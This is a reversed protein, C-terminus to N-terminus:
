SGAEERIALCQVGFADVVGLRLTDPVDEISFMPPVELEAVFRGQQFGDEFARREMTVLRLPVFCLVCLVAFVIFAVPITATVKVAMLKM